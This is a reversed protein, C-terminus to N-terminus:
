TRLARGLVIRWIGGYMLTIGVLIGVFTFSSDPWRNAILLAIVVSLIGDFFVWGWGPRPKIRWALLIASIGHMFVFAGIALAISAVGVVPRVLLFVGLLLTLIGLLVKLRFGEKARDQIAYIIEVIGALVLLWAFLLNFAVAAIVPQTVALIGALILLVGWVIAGNGARRMASAAPDAM